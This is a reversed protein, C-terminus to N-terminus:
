LFFKIFNLKMRVFTLFINIVDNNESKDKSKGVLLDEANIGGHRKRYKRIEKSEELKTRFVFNEM